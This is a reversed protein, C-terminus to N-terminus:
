EGSGSSSMFVGNAKGNTFTIYAGPSLYGIDVTNSSGLPSNSNFNSHLIYSVFLVTDNGTYSRIVMNNSRSYRADDDDDNSVTVAWVKLEASGNNIRGAKNNRGTIDLREAAYLVTTADLNGQAFIYKGNYAELGTITLKGGTKPAGDDDDSDCATFSLGIIAVLVIIGLKFTNKM